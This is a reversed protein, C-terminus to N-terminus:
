SALLSGRFSFCPHNLLFGAAIDETSAVGVYAVNTNLVGNFDIVPSQTIVSFFFPDAQTVWILNGTQKNVAFVKVGSPSPLSFYEGQDGLILMNGAVAPTM